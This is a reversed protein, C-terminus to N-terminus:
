SPSVVSPQQTHKSKKMNKITPRKGHETPKQESNTDTMAATPQFSLPLRYRIQKETQEQNTDWGANQGKFM